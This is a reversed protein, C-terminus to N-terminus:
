NVEVNTLSSEFHIGEGKPDFTPLTKFLEFQWIVINSIMEENEPGFNTSKPVNSDEEYWRKMSSLFQASARLNQWSFFPLSIPVPFLTEKRKKFNKKQTQNKKEKKEKKEM